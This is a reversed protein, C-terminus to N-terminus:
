RASEAAPRLDVVLDHAGATPETPGAVVTISGGSPMRGTFRGHVATKLMAEAARPEDSALAGFEDGYRRGAPAAGPPPTIVYAKVSRNFSGRLVNVRMIEWERELPEVLLRVTQRNALVALALGALAVGAYHWNRIKRGLSLIRASYVALVLTAAAFSFSARYTSFRDMSFGLMGVFLLVLLGWAIMLRRKAFSEEGRLVKRFGLASIVVVVAVVGWYWAVGAGHDDNLAYLAFGNPLLYRFAERLGDLVIPEEGTVFVGDAVLIGMIVRALVLGGALASVHFLTWVVDSLPERGNRELLVGIIIALAFLASPQHILSAATYIMWGGLLAILRKLGGREIETEIASFGAAALLLTLVQTWSAAQTALVQAGPLIVIGGAIMLAPLENWGSQELQRWVVLGLLTLLLVAALRLWRLREVEDAVTLSTELMAGNLPRGYQSSARVLRGSDERAERMGVYDARSGYNGFVAQWYVTLPLLLLTYLCIRTRM